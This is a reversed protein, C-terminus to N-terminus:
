KWKEKDKWVGWDINKLLFVMLFLYCQNNKKWKLWKWPRAKTCPQESVQIRQGILLVYKSNKFRKYFFFFFYNAGLNHCM